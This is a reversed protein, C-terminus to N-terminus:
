RSTGVQDTVEQEEEEETEEEEDENEADSDQDSGIVRMGSESNDNKMNKASVEDSASPLQISSAEQSTKTHDKGETEVRM